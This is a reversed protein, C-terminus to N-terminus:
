TVTEVTERLPMQSLGKAGLDHGQEPNLLIYIVYVFMCVCMHMRCPKGPPETSLSDAQLPSSRPEIGPNPLDGLSPFPWRSWYEQRSFEVGRVSQSSIWQHTWGLILYELHCDKSPLLLPRSPQIADDVWHVHTQVFDLLHHLVPFGPTSCDVPDFLTLCSQTVSCCQSVSLNAVAHPLWMPLKVASCVIKM